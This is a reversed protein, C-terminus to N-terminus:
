EEYINDPANDTYENDDVEGVDLVSDSTVYVAGGNNSRNGEFINGALVVTSESGVFIGGGDLRADNDSIFNKEFVCSSEHVYIGAGSRESSNGTIENDAVAPSSEEIIVMGGGYRSHNDSILNNEIRPDSKSFVVIGGGMESSENGVILNDEILPSSDLLIFIGGGRSESRNDNIDNGKIVPSAKFIYYGGGAQHAINNIVQNNDIEPNADFISFGAGNQARNGNITNGEFLLPGDGQGSVAIGGGSREAINKAIENATIIVNFSHAIFIGGGGGISTNDNVKNNSIYPSSKYVMIGGGREAINKTVLNNMVTPSSGNTIFIGGGYYATEEQIEGDIEFELSVEEGGGGAITFGSIVAEGTEGSEFLVVSGTRGGDIITEDRVEPNEPDTSRLTINKGNFNINEAYVGPQVVIEDGDGAADIAEQITEYDGPVNIADEVEVTTEEECAAFMFGLAIVMLVTAAKVLIHRTIGTNM